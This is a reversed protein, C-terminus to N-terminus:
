ALPQKLSIETGCRTSSVINIIQAITTTSASIKLVPDRREVM